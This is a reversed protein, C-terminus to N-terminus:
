VTAGTMEIPLTYPMGVVEEIYDEVTLALWNPLYGGQIKENTHKVFYVPKGEYDFKEKGSFLNETLKAKSIEEFTFSYRSLFNSMENAKLGLMRECYELQFGNPINSIAWLYTTLIFGKNIDGKTSIKYKGEERLGQVWDINDIVNKTIKEIDDDIIVGGLGFGYENDPVPIALGKSWLYRTTANVVIENTLRDGWSEELGTDNNNITWNNISLRQSPQKIEVEVILSAGLPVKIDKGRLVPIPTEGEKDYDKIDTSFTVQYKNGSHEVSTPM